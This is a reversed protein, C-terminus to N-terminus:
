LGGRAILINPIMKIRKKMTELKVRAHNNNENKHSEKREDNKNKNVSENIFWWGRFKKSGDMIGYTKTDSM